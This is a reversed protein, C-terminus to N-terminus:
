AFALDFRNPAKKISFSKQHIPMLRKMILREVDVEVVKAVMMTNTTVKGIQNEMPAPSNPAATPIMPTNNPTRTAMRPIQKAIMATGKLSSKPQPSSQPQCESM